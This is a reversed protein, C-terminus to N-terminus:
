AQGKLQGLERQLRILKNLFVEIGPYRDEAAEMALNSLQVMASEVKILAEGQTPPLPKELEEVLKTFKAQLAKLRPSM